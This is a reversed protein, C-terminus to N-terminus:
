FSKKFTLFYIYRSHMVQNNDIWMVDGEEWPICVRIEMMMQLIDDMIEPNFLTGNGFTVAKKPDNRKDTWGVYAAIMSNFWVKKEEDGIKVQKVAPLVSSVTKVDGNELWELNVNLKAAAVKAEEPDSTGFTNIWGRGIPSSPDDEKPIIRTYIVGLKMLKDVFEPYKAQVREFIVDSQLIPTEGGEKPALDCYFLLEEPYLPVQAMEHHFPIPENPPSENTTHVDVMKTLLDIGKYITNRPAAGGVYPLADVGLWDHAFEYFLKPDKGTLFKRFLIAGNRGLEKKLEVRNEKIWELKSALKSGDLVLPFPKTKLSNQQQISSITETITMREGSSGGDSSAPLRGM